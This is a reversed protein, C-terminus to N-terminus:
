DSSSQPALRCYTNQLSFSAENWGKPKITFFLSKYQLNSSADQSSIECLTQFPTFKVIVPSHVEGDAGNITTGSLFTLEYKEGLPIWTEELNQESSSGEPVMRYKIPMASQATQNVRDSDSAKPTIVLELASYPKAIWPWDPNNPDKAQHSSSNLIQLFIEDFSTRIEEVVTAAKLQALQNRNLWLWILMLIGVIVVVILMEVLTFGKKMSM